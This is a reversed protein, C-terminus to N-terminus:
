KFSNYSYKDNTGKKLVLAVLFSILAISFQRSLLVDGMFSLLIATIILFAFRKDKAEKFLNYFIFLLLFFGIIGLQVSEQIYQNHLHNYQLSCKSEPYKTYVYKKFEDMTDGVGVGIIPNHIFIDKGIKIMYVRNGDPSCPDIKKNLIHTTKNVKNHFNPSINYLFIFGISSILISLIINKINIKFYTIITLFLIIIYVFQGTRGNIIFLNFSITIFFIISFIKEKNWEKITFFKDILFIAAVVLYFSYEIHHMFPTPDSALINHKHYIGLFISYSILESIFIGGIFSNIAKPVLEKNLLTYLIFSILFYHLFKLTYFNAYKYNDSWIYSIVMFSFLIFIVKYTRNLKIKGKLNDDFLWLLLILLGLINIAARSLPLIFIYVLIVKNILSNNYIKNLLM